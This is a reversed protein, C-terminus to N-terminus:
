VVWRTDQQPLSSWRENSMMDVAMALYRLSDSAHSHEDHLPNSPEGASNIARRYRKLHNLLPQTSNKDFWIRPFTMRTKIIGQEVDGRGL